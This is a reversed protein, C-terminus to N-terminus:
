RPSSGPWRAPPGRCCPAHASSCRPRRSSRVWCSSLSPRRGDPTAVVPPRPAVPPRHHLQGAGPRGLSPRPGDHQGLRRHTREGPRGCGRDRQLGQERSVLWRPLHGRPAPPVRPCPLEIVIPRRGLAMRCREYRVQKIRLRHLGPRRGALRGSRRSGCRSGCGKLRATSSSRTSWPRGASTRGAMTSAPWSSTLRGEADFSMATTATPRPRDPSGHRPPRDARVLHQRGSLRHPVVDDRESVAADLGPGDGRRQRRGRHDALGGQDAHEGPRPRVPRPRTGVAIPGPAAPADWVFGPPQM